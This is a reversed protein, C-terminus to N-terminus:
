GRRETAFPWVSLHLPWLVLPPCAVALVLTPLSWRQSPLGHRVQTYGLRRAVHLFIQELQDLSIARRATDSIPLCGHPASVLDAFSTKTSPLAVALLPLCAPDHQQTWAHARARRLGERLQAAELRGEGNIDAGPPLPTSASLPPAPSLPSSPSPAEPGVGAGGTAGQAGGTGNCGSQAGLGNGTQLASFLEVVEEESPGRVLLRARLDDLTVFGFGDQM